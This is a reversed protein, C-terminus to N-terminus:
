HDDNKIGLQGKDRASLEHAARIIEIMLRKREETPIADPFHIDSSPYFDIQDSEHSKIFQIAYWGDLGLELAKSMHQNEHELIIEVEERSDLILELAERFKSISALLLVGKSLAEANRRLRNQYEADSLEGNLFAQVLADHQDKLSELEDRQLATEQARKVLERLDHKSEDVSM